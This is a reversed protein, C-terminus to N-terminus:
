FDGQGVVEEHIQEVHARRTRRRCGVVSTVLALIGVSVHMSPCGRPGPMRTFNLTARSKRLRHRQHRAASTTHLVEDSRAVLHHISVPEIQGSPWVAGCCVSGPTGATRFGGCVLYAPTSHPQCCCRSRRSKDNRTHYSRTASRRRTNGAGIRLRRRCRLCGDVVIACIRHSGIDRGARVAGGSRDAVPCTIPLPDVVGIARDIVGHAFLRLNHLNFRTVFCELGGAALGPLM